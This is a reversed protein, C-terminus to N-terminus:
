EVFSELVHRLLRKFGREVEEVLDLSDRSGQGRHTLAAPEQAPESWAVDALDENLGVAEDVAHRALGDLDDGKDVRTAVVFTRRMFASM